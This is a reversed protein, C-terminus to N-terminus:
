NCDKRYLLVLAIVPLLQRLSLNRVCSRRRRIKDMGQFTVTGKAASVDQVIAFLLGRIAILVLTAVNLLGDENWKRGSPFPASGVARADLAGGKRRPRLSQDHLVRNPIDLFSSDGARDLSEQDRRGYDGNDQDGGRDM